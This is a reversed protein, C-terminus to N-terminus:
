SRPKVKTLNVESLNSNRIHRDFTLSLVSFEVNMIQLFINM